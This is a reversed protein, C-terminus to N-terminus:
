DNETGTIFRLRVKLRRLGESNVSDNFLVLRYVKRKGPSKFQLFVIYSSVICEGTLVVARRQQNNFILYMDNNADIVLKKVVPKYFVKLFHFAFFFHIVTLLLRFLYELGNLFLVSILALFLFCLLLALSTRSPNIELDLPMEFKNPLM